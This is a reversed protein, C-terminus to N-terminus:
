KTNQTVIFKTDRKSSYNQIKYIVVHKNNSEMEFVLNVFANSGFHFIAFLTFVTIYFHFLIPM